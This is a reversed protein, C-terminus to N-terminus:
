KVTTRSAHFLEGELRGTHCGSQNLPSPDFYRTLLQLTRIKEGQLEPLDDRIFVSYVRSTGVM